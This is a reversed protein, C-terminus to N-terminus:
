NLVIISKFRYEWKDPLLPMGMNYCQKDILPWCNAMKEPAVNYLAAISKFLQEFNVGSDKEHDFATYKNLVNEEYTRRAHQ